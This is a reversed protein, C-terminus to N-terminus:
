DRQELHQDSLRIRRFNSSYYPVCHLPSIVLVRRSVLGHGIM